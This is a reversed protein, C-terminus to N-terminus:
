HTSAGDDEPVSSSSVDPCAWLRDEYSRPPIESLYVVREFMTRAIRARLPLILM